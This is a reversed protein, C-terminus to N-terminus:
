YDMGGMGAPAGGEKKEEPEDAIAAETTLLIAAASVAHQVGGRTVKVPDIIGAELMDPVIEDKVADYGAMGKAKKVEEVVVDGSEKGTNIAIQKLPRLLASLVIGRGQGNEEL